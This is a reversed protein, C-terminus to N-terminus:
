RTPKQNQEVNQKAQTHKQENPYLHTTQTLRENIYMVTCLLRLYFKFACKVAEFSLLRFIFALLLWFFGIVLLRYVLVITCCRGRDAV